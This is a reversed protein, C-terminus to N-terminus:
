RHHPFWHGTNWLEVVDDPATQYGAYGEMIEAVDEDTINEVLHANTPRFTADFIKLCLKFLSKAAKNQTSPTCYYLSHLTPSEIELTKSEAPSIVWSTPM